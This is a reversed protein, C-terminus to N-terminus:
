DLVKKQTKNKDIWKKSRLGFCEFIDVKRKQKKKMPFDDEVYMQFFMKFSMTEKALPDLVDYLISGKPLTGIIKSESNLIIMDETLIFKDQVGSDIQLKGYKVGIWFSIILFVVISVIYILVKMKEKGM